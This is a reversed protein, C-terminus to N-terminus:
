EEVAPAGAPLWFDLWQERKAGVRDYVRQARLNDPATQWGLKPVVRRKCEDVCAAILSEAVGSGRAEPTVFLDNMVGLRAATTTEWSWYITAFGVATGADDRALLQLGEREPDALLARALGLLAADSPAADYFECYSRVLPLLDALDAETVRAIQM